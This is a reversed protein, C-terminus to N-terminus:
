CCADPSGNTSMTSPCTRVMSAISVKRRRTWSALFIMRISGTSIIGMAMEVRADPMAQDHMLHVVRTIDRLRSDQPVDLDSGYRRESLPSMSRPTM